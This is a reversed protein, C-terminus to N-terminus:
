CATQAVMILTRCSQTRILSIRMSFNGWAVEMHLTLWLLIACFLIWAGSVLQGVGEVTTLKAALGVKEKHDPTNERGAPRSVQKTHKDLAWMASLSVTGGNGCIYSVNRALQTQPGQPQTHANCPPNTPSPNTHTNPNHLIILTSLDNPQQTHTQTHTASSLNFAYHDWSFQPRITPSERTQPFESFNYKSEWLFM